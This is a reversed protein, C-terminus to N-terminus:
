TTDHSDWQLLFAKGRFKIFWMFTTIEIWFQPCIQKIDTTKNKKKINGMEVQMRFNILPQMVSNVQKRQKQQSLTGKIPQCNLGNIFFAAILTILKILVVDDNHLYKM